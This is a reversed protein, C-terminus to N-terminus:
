ILMYLVTTLQAAQRGRDTFGHKRFIFSDRLLRLM